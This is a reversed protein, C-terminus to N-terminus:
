RAGNRAVGEARRGRRRTYAAFLLMAAMGARGSSGGCGCGGDSATGGHSTDGSGGSDGSGGDDNCGGGGQNTGTDEDCTGGDTVWGVNCVPFHEELRADYDIFRMQQTDHRRSEYLVLDQTASEPTYRMRLRTFWYYMGYHYDPQYGLSYVDDESPIVGTCPDCDGNGWSYETV